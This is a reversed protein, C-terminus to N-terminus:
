LMRDKNNCAESIGLLPRGFMPSRKQTEISLKGTFPPIRAVLSGMNLFVWGKSYQQLRDQQIYETTYVSRLREGAFWFVYCSM